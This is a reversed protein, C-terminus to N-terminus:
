RGAPPGGPYDKHRFRLNKTCNDGKTNIRMRIVGIVGFTVGVFIGEITMYTLFIALIAPATGWKLFASLDRSNDDASIFAHRAANIGGLILALAVRIHEFLEHRPNIAWAGLLYGVVAGIAFGITARTTKTLGM